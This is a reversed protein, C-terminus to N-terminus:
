ATPAVKLVEEQSPPPADVAIDAAKSLLNSLGEDSRGISYMHRLTVKAVEKPLKVSALATALREAGNKRSLLADILPAPDLRTDTGTFLRAKGRLFVYLGWLVVAGAVLSWLLAWPILPDFALRAAQFM